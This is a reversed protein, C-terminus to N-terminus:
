FFLLYEITFLITFFWEIIYFWSGYNVRIGSVSDLMVALVSVLISLILIVDFWKGAPTDAEFIIEHLKFRWPSLNNKQQYEIM